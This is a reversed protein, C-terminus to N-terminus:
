FSHALYFSFVIHINLYISFSFSFMNQVIINYLIIHMTLSYFMNVLLVVRTVDSMDRTM